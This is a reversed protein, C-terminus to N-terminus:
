EEDDGMAELEAEHRAKDAAGKADEDRDVLEIFAMPAAAVDWALSMYPKFRLRMLASIGSFRRNVSRIVRFIIPSVDAVQRLRDVPALRRM